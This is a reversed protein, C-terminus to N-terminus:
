PGQSDPVLSSGVVKGAIEAFSASMDGATAQTVADGPSAIRVLADPASIGEARDLYGVGDTYEGHHGDVVEAHPAQFCGDDPRVGYGVTFVLTGEGGEPPKISDAYDVASGCPRLVEDRGAATPQYVVNRDVTATRAHPDFASDPATNAAGDSEFVIVRQVGSRGSGHQQLETQAALLAQRYSTSGGARLCGLAAVLASSPNLSGDARLYDSSMHVVAYGGDSGLPYSDGRTLPFASSSPPAACASGGPAPPLVLLSVHDLEPDLARLFTKVGDRLANMNGSMSNTRDVVLAIDLPRNGCTGCATARVEVDISDIGLLRAFTTPVSAQERVVVGNARGNAPASGPPNGFCYSVDKLCYPTVTQVVAQGDVPNRGAPGYVAAASVAAATDPLSAAAALATADATAQLRRQVVYARGVDVVVAVFGLLLVLLGAALVPLVQGEERRLARALRASAGTRGGGSM